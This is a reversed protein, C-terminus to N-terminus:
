VRFTFGAPSERPFISLTLNWPHSGPKHKTTHLFPTPQIQINLRTLTISSSSWPQSTRVLMRLLPCSFSCFVALFLLWHSVLLAEWFTRLGDLLIELLPCNEGKTDSTLVSEGRGRHQEWSSAKCATFPLNDLSFNWNFWLIMCVKLSNKIGDQTFCLDIIRVFIAFPNRLMSTDQWFEPNWKEM